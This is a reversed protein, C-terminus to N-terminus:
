RVCSSMRSQLSGRGQYFCRRIRVLQACVHNGDLDELVHHFYHCFAFTGPWDPRGGHARWELSHHRSKWVLSNAKKGAIHWTVDAETVLFMGYLLDFFLEIAMIETQGAARWIVGRHFWQRVVPRKFLTTTAGSGHYHHGQGTGAEADGPTSVGSLETKTGLEGGGGGDGGGGPMGGDYTRVGKSYGFKGYNHDLARDRQLIKELESSVSQLQRHTEEWESVADGFRARIEERRGEHHSHVERLYTIHEDSGHTVVEFDVDPSSGPGNVGSYQRHLAPIDLPLGAIIKKGSPLTFEHHRFRRGTPTHSM